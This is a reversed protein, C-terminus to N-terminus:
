PDCGADLAELDIFTVAPIETFGAAISCYVRHAGDKLGFPHCRAQKALEVPPLADNAVFARLIKEVRERASIGNWHDDNFVPVGDRRPVPGIDAIPILCVRRGGAAGHDCRYAPSLPAFNSMGAAVWWEDPLEVKL